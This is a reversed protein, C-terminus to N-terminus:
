GTTAGRRAPRAGNIRSHYTDHEPASAACRRTTTVLYCGEVEFEPEMLVTSSTGASMPMSVSPETSSNWGHTARSRLDGTDPDPLDISVNDFGLAHHIGDCVSQLIADISFTETLRSSVALLQELAARHRAPEAAEQASQIALAAHDAMAVLITSSRTPAAHLRVRARRGALIGLLHGDSHRLPM